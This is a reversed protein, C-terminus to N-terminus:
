KSEDSLGNQASLRTEKRKLLYLTILILFAVVFTTCLSGELGYVYDFFFTSATNTGGIVSVPYSSGNGPVGIIFIQIYNWATHIGCSIWFNGELKVLFYFWVGLLFVNLCFLTSFGLSNMNFIHHFIFLSGSVFAVADYRHEPDLVAPVYGRLLMEEASCQIFVFFILPIVLFSFSQYSYIVSGSVASLFILFLMVAAGLLLGLGLSRLKRTLSGETFKYLAEPCFIRMYILTLIIPIIIWFEANYYLEFEEGVLPLFPNISAQVAYKIFLGGNYIILEVIAVFLINSQLSRLTHKNNSDKLM